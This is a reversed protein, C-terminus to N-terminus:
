ISYYVNQLVSCEDSCKIRDLIPAAGELVRREAGWTGGVVVRGVVLFGLGLKGGRVHQQHGLM